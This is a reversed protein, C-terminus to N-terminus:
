SRKRYHRANDLLNEIEIEDDLLQDAYKVFLKETKEPWQKRCELWDKSNLRKKRTKEATKAKWSEYQDLLYLLDNEKQIAEPSRSKKPKNTTLSNQFALFGPLGNIITKRVHETREKIESPLIRGPPLIYILDDSEKKQKDLFQDLIAQLYRIWNEQHEALWLFFKGNENFADFLCINSCSHLIAQDLKHLREKSNELVTKKTEISNPDIRLSINQGHRPGFFVGSWFPDIAKYFEDLQKLLEEFSQDVSDKAEQLSEFSARNSSSSTAKKKM